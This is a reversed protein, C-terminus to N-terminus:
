KRLQCEFLVAIGAPATSKVSVISWTEAGIIALDGPRPVSVGVPSLYLQKDGAVILSGAAFEAGSQHLGFDFVAGNGLEDATTISASGTEPDYGGATQRRITVPQGFEGLLEDATIALDGYFSM